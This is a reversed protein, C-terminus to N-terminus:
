PFALAWRQQGHSPRGKHPEKRAVSCPSLWLSRQSCISKNCTGAEGTSFSCPGPWAMSVVCPRSAVLGPWSWAQLSIPSPPSSNPGGSLFTVYSVKMPLLPHELMLLPLQGEVQTQDEEPPHSPHSRKGSM